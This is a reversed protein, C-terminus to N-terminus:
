PRHRLDTAAKAWGGGELPSAIAAHPWVGKWSGGLSDSAARAKHAWGRFAPDPCLLYHRTADVATVLGPATGGVLAWSSSFCRDFM